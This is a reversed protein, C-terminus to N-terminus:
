APIPLPPRGWDSVGKGSSIAVIHRIGPLKEPGTQPSAESAGAQHTVTHNM